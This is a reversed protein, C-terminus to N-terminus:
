SGGDVGTRDRSARGRRLWLATAVGVALLAIAAGIPVLPVPNLPGGAVTVSRADVEEFWRLGDKVMRHRLVFEGPADPATVRVRLTESEGPAIDRPLVFRQDSAWGVGPENSAGGFSVGLRVRTEGHANWTYTGTNTVTVNYAQTDGAQWPEMRPVEYEASLLGEWLGPASTVEVEQEPGGRFWRMGHGLRHRIVYSGDFDPARVSVELTRTEGPAVNEDLSFQQDTSWGYEAGSPAFQVHLAAADPGSAPWPEDGSNTVSVEYTQPTGALWADPATVEYEAADEDIETMLGEFRHTIDLYNFISGGGWTLVRDDLLPFEAGFYTNFLIRFSNVPTISPYFDTEEVGPFYVANLIGFKQQVDEQSATAWDRVPVLPRPGEDAQIIIIPDTEDPGSLLHDVVELIRSNTYQLQELFRGTPNCCGDGFRREPPLVGDSDFVYPPHPLLIHSYVFMPGEVDDLNQLAELQYLANGIHRHTPDFGLLRQVPPIVTTDLLTDAFESLWQWQYRVDVEAGAATPAFWSPIQVQTYGHEELLKPAALSGALMDYVPKWDGPAIAYSEMEDADLYAMNLSSALSLATMIYNARSDDAVYFGYRELEDLFPSNDFGYVTSMLTTQSPYRDLIIYYIDRREDTMGEPRGEMTEIGPPRYTPATATAVQHPVVPVLNFALVVGAVLNLTRTVRDAQRRGVVVVAAALLGIAAWQWLELAPGSPGGTLLDSAYRYGLTWFVLVSTLAGALRANRLPLWLLLLVVATAALVVVLAGLVDGLEVQDDLNEALLYVVFLAAFLFPHIPWSAVSGLDPRTLGPARNL